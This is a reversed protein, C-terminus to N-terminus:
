ISFVIAWYHYNLLIYNVYKSPFAPSTLLLIWLLFQIYFTCLYSALRQVYLGKIGGERRRSRFTRTGDLTQHEIYIKIKELILALKDVM